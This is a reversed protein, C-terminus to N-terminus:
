LYRQMETAYTGQAQMIMECLERVAGQGGKSPTVWHAHQKVLEHADNVAIALGARLMIPLDVVDDGACAVQNATLRLKALLEELVALKEECGQYVYEIGLESVRKEVPKSTRGSIISIEVGTRQLMKIGHGDRTSFAKYEKGDDSLFLKGDTLVGDVDLVVLKVQAALAHVTEELRYPEKLLNGM